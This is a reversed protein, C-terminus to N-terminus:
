YNSLQELMILTEQIFDQIRKLEVQWRRSLFDYSDGTYELEYAKSIEAYSKYDKIFHEFEKIQKEVTTKSNPFAYHFDTPNNNFYNQAQTYYWIAADIWEQTLNKFLPNWVLSYNKEFNPHYVKNYRKQDLWYVVDHYQDKESTLCVIPKSNSKTICYLEENPTIIKRDIDEEHYGYCLTEDTIYKKSSEFDYDQYEFSNSSYIGNGVTNFIYDLVRIKVLDYTSDSYLSPYMGLFKLIAQDPTYYVITNM